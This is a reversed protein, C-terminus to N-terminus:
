PCRPTGSPAKSSFVEFVRGQSTAVLLSIGNEYLRATGLEEPALAIGPVDEWGADTRYHKVGGGVVAFTDGCLRAFDTACEVDVGGDTPGCGVGASPPVASTLPQSLQVPTPLASIFGRAYALRGRGSETWLELPPGYEPPLAVPTAVWRGDDLLDVAFLQTQTLAYLSALPARGGAPVDRRGVTVDKLSVGPAPVLQQALPAPPLLPGNIGGDAVTMMQRTVDAVWLADKSAIVLLRRGDTADVVTGTTPALFSPAGPPLAALQQPEGSGGLPFVNANLVQTGTILFGPQGQVLGAIRTGTGGSLPLLESSLGLESPAFPVDGAVALVWSNGPMVLRLVADPLRDLVTPWLPTPLDSTDAQDPAFWLRGGAGAHGRFTGTASVPRLGHAFPAEDENLPVFRSGPGPNMLDCNSFGPTMRWSRPTPLGAGANASCRALVYAEPSGELEEVVFDTQLPTTDFPCPPCLAGLVAFDGAGGSQTVFGVVTVGGLEGEVLLSQNNPSPEVAFLRRPAFGAPAILRGPTTASWSGDGPNRTARVIGRPGLAYFASEWGSVSLLSTSGGDPVDLREAGGDGFLLQLSDQGFAVARATGGQYTGRRGQPDLQALRTAQVPVAAPAAFDVTRTPGFTSVLRVVQLGGDPAAVYVDSGSVALDAVEAESWPFRRHAFRSAGGDPLDVEARMTALCHLGGDAVFAVSRAAESSRGGANVFFMRGVAAQAPVGTELRPSVLEVQPTVLRSPSLTDRADTCRHEVPDCRWTPVAECDDNTLCPYAGGDGLEQCRRVDDQGAVGCRWANPCDGADPRCERAAGVAPDFCRGNSACRWGDACHRVADTCALEEGVTPDFCRGALGCRWGGPCQGGDLEEPICPFPKKAQDLNACTSCGAAASLFLVAALRAKM